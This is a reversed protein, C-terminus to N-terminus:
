GSDGGALRIGRYARAGDLRSDRVGRETLWRGLTAAPPVDDGTDECYRTLAARLAKRQVRYDDDLDCCENVFRGITDNETRYGTTARDVADPPGKASPFKRRRSNSQATLAAPNGSDVVGYVSLCEPIEQASEAEIGARVDGAEGAAREAHKLAM